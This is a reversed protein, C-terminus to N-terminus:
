SATLSALLEVVAGAGGVRLGDAVLWATVWPGRVQLEGCVVEEREVVGSATITENRRALRLGPTARLLARAREPAVPHACRVLVTALNGHFIGTDIVHLGRDLNPFLEGLQADLATFRESAAPALDFALVAPLHVPRATPQGSLRATGQSALEDIAEAGFGSAPCLLTFHFAEPVLPVLAKLWRTPAALSPDVLHYWRLERSKPPLTDVVCSAETGTVGPQTCDLLVVAPNARLWDLLRGGVEAAPKATLIVAASGDLEDLELLPPVLAAEGAVETILHEAEAGTHFFRRHADPFARVIGDTVESGLLSTPDLISLTWHPPRV